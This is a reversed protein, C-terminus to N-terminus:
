VGRVMPLMTASPVARSSSQMSTSAMLAVVAYAFNLTGTILNLIIIPLLIATVIDVAPDSTTVILPTLPDSTWWSAAFLVIIFVVASIFHLVGAIASLVTAAVFTNCGDLPPSSPGCCLILSGSIIGLICGLISLADGTLIAFVMNITAFLLVTIGLYRSRNAMVTWGDVSGCM